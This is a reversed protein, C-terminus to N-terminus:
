RGIGAPWVIGSVLWGPHRQGAQVVPCAAPEHEAPQRGVGVSGKGGLMKRVVGKPIVQMFM